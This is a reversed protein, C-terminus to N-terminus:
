IFRGNTRSRRNAQERRQEIGEITRLYKRMGTRTKERDEPNSRRLQQSLHMRARTEPSLKRGLKSARMKELTAASFAGRLGKNWPEAGTRDLCERAAESISDGGETRNYGNPELTRFYKIFYREVQKLEEKNTINSCVETYFFKSFGYKRMHAHLTNTGRRKRATVLHAQWRRRLPVTCAGVYAKNNVENQVIYVIM